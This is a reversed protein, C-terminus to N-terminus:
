SSNIVCPNIWVADEMRQDYLHYGASELLAVLSSPEWGREILLVGFTVKSFDISQLVSSEAGEVDLSLYDIVSPAHFHDLISVLSTTIGAENSGGMAAGNICPWGSGHGAGKGWCTKNASNGMGQAVIGALPTSSAMLNQFWPAPHM